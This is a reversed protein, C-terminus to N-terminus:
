VVNLEVVRVNVIGQLFDLQAEAAQGLDNGAVAQRQHVRVIGVAQVHHLPGQGTLVSPKESEELM